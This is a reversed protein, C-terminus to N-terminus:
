LKSLSYIQKWQIIACFNKDDNNNSGSDVILEVCRSLASLELGAAVKLRRVLKKGQAVQRLMKELHARYHSTLNFFFFM